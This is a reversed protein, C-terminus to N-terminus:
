PNQGSNHLCHQLFVMLVNMALLADSSTATNPSPKATSNNARESVMYSQIVRIIGQSFPNDSIIGEEKTRAFLKGLEGKGNKGVGILIQLFGQLTSHAKTIVEPYAQKQYDDFMSSLSDSVSKWKPDSLAKLVPAYIEETIKDDQRHVVGSRTIYINVCFQEFIHNLVNALSDFERFASDILENKTKNDEVEKAEDLLSTNIRGSLLTSLMVFVLESREELFINCFDARAAQFEGSYDANHLQKGPLTRLFRRNLYLILELIEDGPSDDLLLDQNYFERLAIGKEDRTLSGWDRLPLTPQIRSEIEPDDEGYIKFHPINTM